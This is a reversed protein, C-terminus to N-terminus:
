AGAAAVIGAIVDAPIEVATEDSGLDRLKATTEDDLKWGQVVYTGRDTHYISPCNGGASDATKRIFQLEM